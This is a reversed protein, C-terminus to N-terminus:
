HSAALGTVEQYIADAVDSWKRLPAAAIAREREAVYAPDSLARLIKRAMDAPDAPDVYDILDQCVEPISSAQSAVCYKGFWAGEGVPLGWGEYYSPYATFLCHRYLWALERDSPSDVLVVRGALEPSAGLLESFEKILWGQKGAFALVTSGPHQAVVQKWAQLLTIGNKRVELTGVCLVYPRGQLSDLKPSSAMVDANRAFGDFEHALPAAKISWRGADPGIYRRLDNATWESVCLVRPALRVLEELWRMYTQVAGATLYQPCVQPILDHVLQVMDGGHRVHERAFRTLHENSANISLAVYHAGPPLREVQTMPLLSYSEEQRRLGMAELRRPMFFSSALVDIKKAIRLLKNDNYPRLYSKMKSRSPLMWRRRELGLKQLLATSDYEDIDFLRTPDVEVMGLVDSHFFICRVAQGGHKRGLYAILNFQVRQIGSVRDNAVAYRVIDTIDFYVRGASM